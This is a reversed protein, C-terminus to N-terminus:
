LSLFTAAKKKSYMFSYMFCSKNEYGKLFSSLAPLKIKNLALTIFFIFPQSIIATMLLILHEPHLIKM